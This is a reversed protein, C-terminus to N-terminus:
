LKLSCVSYSIGDQDSTGYLFCPFQWCFLPLYRGSWHTYIFHNYTRYRQVIVHCYSIWNTCPVIMGKRPSKGQHHHGGDDATCTGGNGPCTDGGAKGCPGPYFTKLLLSTSVVLNNEITNRLSEKSVVISGNNIATEVFSHSQVHNSMAGPIM